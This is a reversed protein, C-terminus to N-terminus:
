KPTRMHRAKSGHEIAAAHLPSINFEGRMTELLLLESQMLRGDAAAVDCGLAYATEYLEPPLADKILAFLADLGDEEEYLDYVTQSIVEIRDIDYQAFIPLHDVMRAISVLEATKMNEDSAAVAVMIAILADELDLSAIPQAMSAIPQAM